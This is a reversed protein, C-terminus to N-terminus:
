KKGNTYVIPTILINYEDNTVIRCISKFFIIAYADIPWIFKTNNPKNEWDSSPKIPEIYIISLWPKIELPKNVVM